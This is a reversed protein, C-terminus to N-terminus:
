IFTVAASPSACLASAQTPASPRGVNSRSAITVASRCGTPATNHTRSGSIFAARRMAFLAFFAVM